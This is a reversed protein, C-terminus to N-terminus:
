REKRLGSLYYRGPLQEVAGRVELSFLAAQLRGVGFPAREALADLHVPEPDDLLALVAAEDPALNGLNPAEKGPPAPGPGLAAQYM